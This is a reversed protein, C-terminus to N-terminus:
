PFQVSSFYSEGVEPGKTLYKSVKTTLEKVVLYEFYIEGPFVFTKYFLEKLAM